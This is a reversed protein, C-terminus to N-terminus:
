LWNKLYWGIWFNMGFNDETEVIFPILEFESIEVSSSEDERENFTGSKLLNFKGLIKLPAMSLKIIM